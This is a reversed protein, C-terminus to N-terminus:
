IGIRGSMQQHHLLLETYPESLEQGALFCLLVFDLLEILTVGSGFQRLKQGSTRKVKICSTELMTTFLIGHMCILGKVISSANGDDFAVARITATLSCAM